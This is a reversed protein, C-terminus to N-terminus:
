QKAQVAPAPLLQVPATAGQIAMGTPAEAKSM